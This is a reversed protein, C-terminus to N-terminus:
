IRFKRGGLIDDQHDSLIKKLKPDIDGSYLWVDGKLIIRLGAYDKDDPVYPEILKITNTLDAGDGHSCDCLLLGNADAELLATILLDTEIPATWLLKFSDHRSCSCGDIDTYFRIETPDNNTQRADWEALKTTPEVTAPTDDFDVQSHDNNGCGSVALIAIILVILFRYM